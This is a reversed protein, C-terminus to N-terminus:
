FEKGRLFLGGGQEPCRLKKLAVRARTKRKLAQGKKGLKWAEELYGKWHELKEPYNSIILNESFNSQISPEFIIRASLKIHIGISDFFNWVHFSNLAGKECHNELHPHQIRPNQPFLPFLSHCFSFYFQSGELDEAKKKILIVWSKNIQYIM